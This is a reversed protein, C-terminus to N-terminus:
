SGAFPKPCVKSTSFHSVALTTRVQLVYAVGTAVEHLSDFLVSFAPFQRVDAAASCASVVFWAM